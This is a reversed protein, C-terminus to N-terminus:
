ASQDGPSSTTDGVNQAKAWTDKIAGPSEADVRMPPPPASTTNGVCGGGSGGGGGGDSGGRGGGVTGAESVPGDARATQPVTTYGISTATETAPGAVGVTAAERRIGENREVGGGGNGGQRRQSGDGPAATVGTSPSSLSEAVTTTDQLIPQPPHRDTNEIGAPEGSRHSNNPGDPM